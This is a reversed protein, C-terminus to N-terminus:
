PGSPLAPLGQLHRSSSHSISRHCTPCRPLWTAIVRVMALRATIFSDHFHREPRSTSRTPALRGEPRPPFVGCGNLLSSSTAACPSLSAPLSILFYNAAQTEGDRWEILLWLPEQERKPVGAAVVRRLAFRAEETGKRWTCRRVARTGGDGDARGASGAAEGGLREVELGGHEPQRRPGDGATSEVTWLALGVTGALSGSGEELLNFSLADYNISGVLVLRDDVLMTKAHMM